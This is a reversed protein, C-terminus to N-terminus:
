RIAHCDPPNLNRWGAAALWRAEHLCAKKLFIWRFSRSVIAPPWEAVFRARGVEARLRENVVFTTSPHKHGTENKNDSPCSASPSDHSRKPLGGLAEGAWSQAEASIGM